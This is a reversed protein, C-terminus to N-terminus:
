RNRTQGGFYFGLVTGFLGVEASIVISSWDKVAVPDLGLWKSSMLGIFSLLITGGFILALTEALGARVDADDIRGKVLPIDILDRKDLDKATIEEDTKQLADKSNDPPM